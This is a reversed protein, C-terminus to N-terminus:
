WFKLIDNRSGHSPPLRGFESEALYPRDVGRHAEDGAGQFRPDDRGPDRHPHRQHDHAEGHRIKLCSSALQLGSHIRAVFVEDSGIM